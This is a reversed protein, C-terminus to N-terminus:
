TLPNINQNMRFINKPDYRKKLALLRDYNEGYAERVRQEGEIGLANVYVRKSSYPQMDNWSRRTWEIHKEDEEPNVWNSVLVLDIQDKRHPFASDAAPRNVAGGYFELLIASIPSTITKAFQYDYWHCWRFAIGSIGVELLLPEWAPISGWDHNSDPQLAMVCTRWGPFSPSKNKLSIVGPVNSSIEMGWALRRQM